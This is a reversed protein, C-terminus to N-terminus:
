LPLHTGNTHKHQLEHLLITKLVFQFIIVIGDLKLIGLSVIRSKDNLPIFM